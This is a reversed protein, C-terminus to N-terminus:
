VLYRLLDPELVQHDLGEGLLVPQEGDLSLLSSILNTPSALHARQWDRRLVRASSACTLRPELGVLTVPDGVFGLNACPGIEIEVM